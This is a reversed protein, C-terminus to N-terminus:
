SESGPCFRLIIFESRHIVEFEFYFPLFLKTKTHLLAGTVRVISSLFDLCLLRLLLYGHFGDYIAFFMDSPQLQAVSQDNGRHLLVLPRGFREGGIIVHVVVAPKGAFGRHHHQFRGPYRRVAPQEAVVDANKRILM